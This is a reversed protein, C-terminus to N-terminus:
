LHFLFSVTHLLSLTHSTHTGTFSVPITKKETTKSGGGGWGGGQM